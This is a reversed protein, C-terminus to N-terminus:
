LFNNNNLNKHNTGTKNFNKIKNNNHSNNSNLGNIKILLSYIKVKNIKNLGCKNLLQNHMIKLKNILITSTQDPIIITKIKFQLQQIQLFM